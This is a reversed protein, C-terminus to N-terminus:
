ICDNWKLKPSLSHERQKKKEWDRKKDTWIQHHETCSGATFALNSYICDNWKFKSLPNKRDNERQGSKFTNEAYSGVSFFALNSYICDNWKLKSVAKERKKWIQHERWSGASFSLQQLYLWKM